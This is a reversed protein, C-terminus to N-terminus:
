DMRRKADRTEISLNHVYVSIYEYIYGNQWIWIVPELKWMISEMYIICDAFREYWQIEFYIIGYLEKSFIIIYGERDGFETGSIIYFKELTNEEPYTNGIDTDWTEM